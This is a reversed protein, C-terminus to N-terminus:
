KESYFKIFDRDRFNRAAKLTSTWWEQIDQPEDSNPRTPSFYDFVEQPSAHAHQADLIQLLQIYRSPSHRKRLEPVKAFKGEVGGPAHPFQNKTSEVREAFDEESFAHSKRRLIEDRIRTLEEETKHRLNVRVNLHHKTDSQTLHEKRYTQRFLFPEEIRPNLVYKSGFKGRFNGGVKELLHIDRTYFRPNWRKGHPQRLPPAAIWGAPLPTLTALFTDHFAKIYSKNRRIFHWVWLRRPMFTKIPVLPPPILFRKPWPKLDTWISDRLANIFSKNARIVQGAWPLSKLHADPYSYYERWDNQPYLLDMLSPIQKAVNREM